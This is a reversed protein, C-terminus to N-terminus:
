VMPELAEEQVEIDEKEVICMIESLELLTWTPFGKFLIPSGSMQGFLVRLGVYDKSVNVNLEDFVSARIIHGTTPLLIKETRMSKPLAIASRKKVPVDRDVIIRGRDTTVFPELFCERKLTNDQAEDSALVRELSEARQKMESAFDNVKEEGSSKLLDYERQTIMYKLMFLDSSMHKLDDHMEGENFKLGPAVAFTASRAGRALKDGEV